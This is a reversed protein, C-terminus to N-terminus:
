LMFALLTFLSRRENEMRHSGAEKALNSTARTDPGIGEDKIRLEAGSQNFIVAVMKSKSFLLMQLINELYYAITKRLEQSTVARKLTRLM